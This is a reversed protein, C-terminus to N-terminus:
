KRPKPAVRNGHSGTLARQTGANEQRNQAVRLAVANRHRSSEECERQAKAIKSAREAIEKAYTSIWKQSCTTKGIRKGRYPKGLLTRTVKDAIQQSRGKIFDESCEIGLKVTAEAALEMFVERTSLRKKKTNVVASASSSCGGGCNMGYVYGRTLPARSLMFFKKCGRCQYLKDRWPSLLLAIFLSAAWIRAADDPETPLKRKGQLLSLCGVDYVARQRSRGLDLIEVTIPYASLFQKAAQSAAPAAALDRKRPDERGEPERGTDIWESVYSRLETTVTVAANVLARLRLDDLRELLDEQTVYQRIFNGSGQNLVSLLLNPELAGQAEMEEQLPLFGTMKM